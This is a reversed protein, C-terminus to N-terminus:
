GLLESFWAHADPAALAADLHSKWVRVPALDGDPEKVTITPLGPASLTLSRDNPQVSALLLRHRERATVLSGEDDVVMWRRDGALGWPEVEAQQLENRRCSKIPYRFIRTLTLGM